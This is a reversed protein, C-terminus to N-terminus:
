YVGAEVALINLLLEMNIDAPWFDFLGKSNYVLAFASIKTPSLRVITFRKGVNRRCMNLMDSYEMPKVTRSESVWFTRTRM